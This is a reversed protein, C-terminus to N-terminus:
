AMLVALLPLALLLVLQLRVILIVPGPVPISEDVKKRNKLFFVTPFISLLAILFFLGIKIHFIFNGSYFEKPKGVYLWLVLGAVLTVGASVGYLGDIVSLKKIGSCTVEKSILINEAVLMSTLALIGLFHLYRFAIEEM